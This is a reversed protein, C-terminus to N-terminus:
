LALEYVRRKSLTIIFCSIRELYPPHSLQNRFVIYKYQSINLYVNGM